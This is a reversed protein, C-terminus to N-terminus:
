CQPHYLLQPCTMVVCLKLWDETLYRWTDALGNEIDDISNISMEKLFKRRCQFEIRTVPTGEQWGSREWLEKFWEKGSKKIEHTKDYMRCMLESSGFNYGTLKLGKTFQQIDMASEVLVERKQGEVFSHKKQMRSVVEIYNHQLKPMPIALDVMVDMRSVKTERVHAWQSVWRKTEICADLWGNKRWLYASRFVIHVEPYITGGLAGPKIQVTMDDNVLTYTHRRSGSRMVVFPVGQFNVSGMDEGFDVSRALEKAEALDYWQVDSFKYGDVCFGVELTDIGALVVKSESSINRSM